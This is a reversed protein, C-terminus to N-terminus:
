VVEYHGCDPCVVKYDHVMYPNKKSMCNPCRLSDSDCM